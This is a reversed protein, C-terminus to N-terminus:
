NTLGRAAFNPVFGQKRIEAAVSQATSGSLYEVVFIAKGRSKARKLLNSSWQINATTNRKGDHNIGHILDEKAVGDIVSVYGDDTLLEEANQVVIAANGNASRAEAAVEKVFSIM